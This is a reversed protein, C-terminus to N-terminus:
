TVSGSVTLIQLDDQVGPVSGPNKLGDIELTFATNAVTSVNTGELLIIDAKEYCRCTQVTNTNIKCTLTTV